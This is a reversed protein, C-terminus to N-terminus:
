LIFTIEVAPQNRGVQADGTAFVAEIGKVGSGIGHCARRKSVTEQGSCVCCEATGGVGNCTDTIRNAPGVPRRRVIRVGSRAEDHGALVPRNFRLEIRGLSIHANRPLEFGADSRM